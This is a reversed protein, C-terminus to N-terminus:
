KRKGRQMRFFKVIDRVTNADRPKKEDTRIRLLRPFRLAYGSPYKPSKQIEEYGIEVVVEPKVKMIRGEESIVLKKLTKTLSEMQEETLGSAMRGTEVFKGDQRASLILSGLWKARKGEGWEAGTVVLDLPELIEKVKLWYGVRKGPQYRADLNKVIVGEQGAKIASAFFKKAQAADNTEIHDALRFMESEKIIKKLAAWREALSKEMYPVGDLYLLEFMNIQVPIDKVMKEIDYKRQIRRSLMQFPQPRGNKIAVAEGEIICQKAMVGERVMKAIDPFQHTVDEMRRSFVKIKEGDKHCQVRFGDYKWEIAEGSFKAVAEELSEARDALMVRLPFGIEIEASMKGKRAMEAVRGYDGVIDYIKEIEAPTKGLAMAIANRVIGEAVGIRMDGLITRIIYRAELPKAVHLLEIVLQQKREQSGQGTVGPLQTLNEFVKDVALQKEALTRQRKNAAFFEATKGLDGTEKFKKTLDTESIGYSKMIIKKILGRALGLEETTSVIGMSLSVVKELDSSRRYFDALIDRKELKKATNELRQYLEALEIYRM